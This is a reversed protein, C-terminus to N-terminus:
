LSGRLAAQEFFVAAGKRDGAKLRLEGLLRYNPGFDPDAHIGRELWERALTEKGRAQWFKAEFFHLIGMRPRRLLRAELDAEVQPLRSEDFPDDWDGPRLGRPAWTKILKDHQPGAKAYLVSQDDFDVPQWDASRAMAKALPSNPCLWAFDAKHRDLIKEWDPRQGPGAAEARLAAAYDDAAGRRGDSFVSALPSLEWALRGAWANDNFVNGGTTESRFFELTERPM